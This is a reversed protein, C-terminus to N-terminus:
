YLVKLSDKILSLLKLPLLYQTTLFSFIGSMWWILSEKCVREVWTQLCGNYRWFFRAKIWAGNFQLFVYSRSFYNRCVTLTWWQATKNINISYNGRLLDPEPSNNLSNFVFHKWQRLTTSAKMETLLVIKQICPKHLLARWIFISLSFCKSWFQFYIIYKERMETRPRRCIVYM